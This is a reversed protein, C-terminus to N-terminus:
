KSVHVPTKEPPTKWGDIAADNIGFPNVAVRPFAIDAWRLMWNARFGTSAVIM